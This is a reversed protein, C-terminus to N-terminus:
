VLARQLGTGVGVERPVADLPRRPPEIMKCHPNARYLQLRLRLLNSHRLSLINLLIEQSVFGLKMTSVRM